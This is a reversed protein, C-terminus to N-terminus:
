DKVLVVTFLMENRNTMIKYYNPEKIIWGEKLLSNVKDEFDDSYHETVLKIKM